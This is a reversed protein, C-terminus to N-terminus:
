PLKLSGLVSRLGLFRDRIPSSEAPIYEVTLVSQHDMPSFRLFHVTDYGEPLGSDLVRYDVGQQLRRGNHFVKIELRGPFNQFAQSTTYIRNEGDKVGLLEENHPNGGGSTGGGILTLIREIEASNNGCCEALEKISMVPRNFWVSGQNDLIHHIQSIIYQFFEESDTATAQILPELHDDRERPAELQIQRVLGNDSSQGM